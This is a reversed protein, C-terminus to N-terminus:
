EILLPSLVLYDTMIVEAADEGEVTSMTAISAALNGKNFRKPNSMLRCKSNEAQNM